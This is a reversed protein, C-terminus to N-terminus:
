GKEKRSAPPESGYDNEPEESGVTSDETPFTGPPLSPPQSLKKNTDDEQIHGLRQHWSEQTSAKCANESETTHFVLDKGEERLLCWIENKKLIKNDGKKLDARFGKESGKEEL